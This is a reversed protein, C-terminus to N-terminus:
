SVALAFCFHCGLIIELGIPQRTKDYGKSADGYNTYTSM